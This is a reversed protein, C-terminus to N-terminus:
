ELVGEELAETFIVEGTNMLTEWPDEIQYNPFWFVRGVETVDGHDSLTLEGFIPASTLAGIQEPLIWDLVGDGTISEIIFGEVDSYRKDEYAQALEQRANKDARIILAGKSIEFNIRCYREPSPFKTIMM